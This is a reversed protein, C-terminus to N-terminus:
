FSFNLLYKSIPSLNDVFKSFKVNLSNCKRVHYGPM